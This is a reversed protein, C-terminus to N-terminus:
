APEIPGNRAPKIEERFSVISFTYQAALHTITASIQVFPVRAGSKWHPNNKGLEQYVGMQIVPLAFLMLGFISHYYKHGNGSPM